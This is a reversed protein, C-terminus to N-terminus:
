HGKRNTRKGFTRDLATVLKDLAGSAAQVVSAAEDTVTVPALGSPRAEIVCRKDNGGRGPGDEDGVHLEVRTLRDEFRSLSSRVDQELQGILADRGDVNNATNIQIQM